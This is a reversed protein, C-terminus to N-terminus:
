INIRFIRLNKYCQKNITNISKNSYYITRQTDFSINVASHELLCIQNTDDSKLVKTWYDDDGVGTGDGM